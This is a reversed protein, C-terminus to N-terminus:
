KNMTKKCLAMTWLTSIKIELVKLGASEILSQFEKKSWNNIHGPTNGLRNLYKLRFINALRFFPENPVSLIIYKKTSKKIEELALSPQELHELVESAIIMDHKEINDSLDYISCVSFKLHPYKKKAVEIVKTSVDAGHINIGMEDIYRTLYGEGCGIEFANEIENKIPDMLGKFDQFYTNMLIKVLPNRSEYKNYLNGGEINLDVSM